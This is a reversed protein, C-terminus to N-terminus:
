DNLLELIRNRIESVKFPRGKIKSMTVADVLYKARILLALQGSNLEPILVKDFGKILGALDSPFPNLYRLNVSTVNDYGEKHLSDVASAIRLAMSCASVM